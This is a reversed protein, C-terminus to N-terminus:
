AAEEKVSEVRVKFEECFQYFIKEVPMIRMVM